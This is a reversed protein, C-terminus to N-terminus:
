LFKSEVIKEIWKTDEKTYYENYGSNNYHCNEMRLEGDGRNRITNFGFISCGGMRLYSESDLILDGHIETYVLDISSGKPLDIIVNGFINVGICNFRGEGKVILNGEINCGSFNLYNTDMLTVNANIKTSYMHLESDERGRSFLSGKFESGSEMLLNKDLYFINDGVISSRIYSYKSAAIWSNDSISSNASVVVGAAGVMNEDFCVPNNEKMELPDGVVKEM